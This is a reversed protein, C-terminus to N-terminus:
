KRSPPPTPESPAPPGSGLVKSIVAAAVPIQSLKFGLAFSGAIIIVLTGWASLSLNRFLWSLTAREPVPLPSRQAKRDIAKAVSAKEESVYKAYHDPHEKLERYLATLFAKHERLIRDYGHEMNIWSPQTDLMKFRLMDKQSVLPSMTSVARQKWRELQEGFYTLECGEQIERELQGLESFIKEVATLAPYLM